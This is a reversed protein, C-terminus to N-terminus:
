TTVPNPDTVVPTDIIAPSDFQLGPLLISNGGDTGPQPGVDGEGPFNLPNEGGGSSNGQVRAVAANIDTLADPAAATACQVILDMRDPVATAASEVILGVTEKTAKSAAIAAKVIECVCDGNQGAEKSVIDLVQSKDALVGNKVNQVAQPCDSQAMASSGFAFVALATAVFSTHVYKKM